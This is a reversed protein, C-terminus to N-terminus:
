NLDIYAAPPPRNIYRGLQLKHLFHQADSYFIRNRVLEVFAELKNDTYLHIISSHLEYGLDFLAAFLKQSQAFQLSTYAEIFIDNPDQNQKKHISYDTDCFVEIFYQLHKSYLYNQCIKILDNILFPQLTSYLQVTM